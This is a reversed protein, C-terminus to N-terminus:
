FPQPLGVRAKQFGCSRKTYVAVNFRAQIKLGAMARARKACRRRGTWRTPRKVATGRCLNCPLQIFYDAQEAVLLSDIWDVARTWLAFGCRSDVACAEANGAYGYLSQGATAIHSTDFM